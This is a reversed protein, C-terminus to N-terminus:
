LTTDETPCISDLTQLFSELYELILLFLIEEEGGGRITDDRQTGKPPNGGFSYRVGLSVQYDKNTKGLFSKEFDFYIRVSEYAQINTGLNILCRPDFLPPSHYFSSLNTTNLSIDGGYIYDFEYFTGVYFSIKFNPNPIFRNPNYGLTTGFRGRLTLTSDIYTDLFESSGEYSQRFNSPAIWGVGLETQPQIYWDQTIKFRYGVENSFSLALNGLKGERKRDRNPNYIEFSSQLYQLKLVSDSYWGEDQIYSNYFAVGSSFSFIDEFRRTQKESVIESKFTPLAFAYFFSVGLFDRFSRGEFGYDYGAQFSTYNSKLGLGLSNSVGGNVIRAWVGHSYPNNRLEGMRQDLHNFTALYLSLNLLPSHIGTMEDSHIIATETAKSIYFITNGRPDDKIYRSTTHLALQTFDLYGVGEDKFLFAFNNRYIIFDINKIEDARTGLSIYAELKFLPDSGGNRIVFFDSHYVRGEITQPSRPDIYLTYTLSFRYFTVKFFSINKFGNSLNRTPYYFGVKDNKWEGYVEGIEGRDQTVEITQNPGTFIINNSLGVDQLIVFLGLTSLFKKKM